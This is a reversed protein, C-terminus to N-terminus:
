LGSIETVPPRTGHPTHCAEEDRFDREQPTEGTVSVGGSDGGQVGILQSFRLFILELLYLFCTLNGISHFDVLVMM